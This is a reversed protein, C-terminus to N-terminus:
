PVTYEVELEPLGVLERYTADVGPHGYLGPFRGYRVFSDWAERWTEVTEGTVFQQYGYDDFAAEIPHRDPLDAPWELLGGDLQDPDPEGGTDATESM